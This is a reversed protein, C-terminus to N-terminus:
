ANEMEQEWRIVLEAADFGCNDCLLHDDDTDVNLEGLCEPCVGDSVFARALEENM